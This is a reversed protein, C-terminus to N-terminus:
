KSISRDAEKMHDVPTGRRVQMTARGGLISDSLRLPSLSCRHQAGHTGHDQGQREKLSVFTAGSGEAPLDLWLTLPCKRYNNASINKEEM